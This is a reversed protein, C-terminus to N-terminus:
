VSPSQVSLQSVKAWRATLPSQSRLPLSVKARRRPPTVGSVGTRSASPFFFYHPRGAIPDDTKGDRQKRDHGGARHRRGAGLRLLFRRPHDSRPAQSRAARGLELCAIARFQRHACRLHDRLQALLLALDASALSPRHRLGPCRPRRPIRGHRPPSDSPRTTSRSKGRLPMSGSVILCRRRGVHTSATDPLCAIRRHTLRSRGLSQAIPSPARRSPM